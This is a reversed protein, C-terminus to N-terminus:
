GKALGVEVESARWLAAALDPHESAASPQQPQGCHWYLPPQEEGEGQPNSFIARVVSLVHGAGEMPTQFLARTLTRLFTGEAGLDFLETDVLGPSITVCSPGEPRQRRLEAAFLVNCLKSRAYRAYWSLGLRGLVNAFGGLGGEAQDIADSSIEEGSNQRIRLSGQNHARSAVVVVCSDATMTPLLLHTLLFHGYHNSWLQLDKTGDGESTADASDRNSGSRSDRMIGANNVLLTRQVPHHSSDPELLGRGRRATSREV